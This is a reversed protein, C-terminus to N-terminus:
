LFLLVGAYILFLSILVVFCYGLIHRVTLGAIALLPITWFPQILNTWQDGYAVAMVIRAPDVGLANAAELFAPGQVVWQGGGSPVFMNVVGASLFAWFSLTQASSISIFWDSIVTVLGTGMMIGMIGAYFPYQLLIPGVTESANRILRITDKPSQSLLLLLSLISWIVINFDIVLGKTSFWHVLFAFLAGGFLLNLIQAEDMIQGFTRPGPNGELPAEAESEQILNEDIVMAQDTAPRMLTCLICVAGLAIAINLLNWSSFITETVPIIGVLSQMAHGDTAVFLPASGSYGMHWVSSGAYATAVLLPYHVKLGKKASQVAVQRAIIAGGVFGFSWVFLSAIGTVFAVLFYAQWERQPIRAVTALTQSVAKTHALAHAGVLMIAIQGIFAMLQPLGNGWAVMTDVPGADTLGLAMAAAVGTLLIVFVFPDPYYREVFTAFPKAAKELLRM